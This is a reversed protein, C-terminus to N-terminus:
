QGVFKFPDQGAVASDAVSGGLFHVFMQLIADSSHFLLLKEGFLITALAKAAGADRRRNEETGDCRLFRRWDRLEM